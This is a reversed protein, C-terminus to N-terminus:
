ILGLMMHKIQTCDEIAYISRDEVFEGDIFMGMTSAAPVTM